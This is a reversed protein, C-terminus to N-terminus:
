NLSIRGNCRDNVGSSLNKITKITEVNTEITPKVKSQRIQERDGNLRLYKEFFLDLLHEFLLRYSFHRFKTFAVGLLLKSTM